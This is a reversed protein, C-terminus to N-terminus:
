LDSVFSSVHNQFIDSNEVKNLAYFFRDPPYVRDREMSENKKDVCSYFIRRIEETDTVEKLQKQYFKTHWECVVDIIDEVGFHNFEVGFHNFLKSPTNLLDEFWIKHAICNTNRYYKPMERM